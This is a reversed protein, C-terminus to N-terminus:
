SDFVLSGDLFFFRLGFTQPNGDEVEWFNFGRKQLKEKKEGIQYFTGDRTLNDMNKKLHCDYM